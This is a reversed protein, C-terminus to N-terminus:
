KNRQAHGEWRNWRPHLEVSEQFKEVQVETATGFIGDSVGVNYGLVKLARQLEKVDEGRSGNKIIM